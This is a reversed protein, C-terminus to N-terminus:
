KKGGRHGGGSARRPRTPYVPVQLDDDDEPVLFDSNPKPGAILQAQEKKVDVLEVKLKDIKAQERALAQDVSAKKVDSPDDSQRGVSAVILSRVRAYLQGLYVEDPVPDVGPEYKKYPPQCAALLLNHLALLEKPTVNLKM